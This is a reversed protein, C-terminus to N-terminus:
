ENSNDKYMTHAPSQNWEQVLSYGSKKNGNISLVTREGNHTRTMKLLFWNV